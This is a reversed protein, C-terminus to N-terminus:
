QQLIKYIGDSLERWWSALFWLRIYQTMDSSKVSHILILNTQRKECQKLQLRQVFLIYFWFEKKQSSKTVLQHSNLCLLSDVLKWRNQSTYLKELNKLFKDIWFNSFYHCFHNTALEFGLLWIRRMNPKNGICQMFKQFDCANVNQLWLKHHKQHFFDCVKAEFIDSWSQRHTKITHM